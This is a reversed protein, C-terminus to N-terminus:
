MNYNKINEKLSTKLTPTYTDMTLSISAHGLWSKGVVMEVSNEFYHNSLL